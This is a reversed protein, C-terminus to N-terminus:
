VPLLYDFACISQISVSFIFDQRWLAIYEFLNLVGKSSKMQM